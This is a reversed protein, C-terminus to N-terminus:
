VPADLHFRVDIRILQGAENRAHFRHWIWLDDGPGGAEFPDPERRRAGAQAVALQIEGHAPLERGLTARLVTPEMGPRRASREERELHLNSGAVERVVLTYSWGGDRGGPRTDRRLDRVEWAIPGTTGHLRSDSEVLSKLAALVAEGFALPRPVEWRPDAVPVAPLLVPSAVVPPAPAAAAPPRTPIVEPQPPPPPVPTAPALAPGPALAPAPVPAPDSWATAAVRTEEVARRPARRAARAGPRVEVPKRRAAALQRAVDRSGTVAAAKHHAAPLGAPPAPPAAPISAIPPEAPRRTAEGLYRAGMGLALIVGAAV